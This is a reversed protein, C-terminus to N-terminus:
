YGFSCAKRGERRALRQAELDRRAAVLRLGACADDGRRM